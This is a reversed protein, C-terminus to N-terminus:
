ADWLEFDDDFASASFDPQITIADARDSIGTLFRIGADVWVDDVDAGMITKAYGTYRVQDRFKRAEGEGLSAVLFATVRDAWEQEDSKSIVLRQEVEGGRRIARDLVNKFAVRQAAPNIRNADALASLLQGRVDHYARFQALSLGFLAILAWGITPLVLGGDHFESIVGLVGSVVFWSLALYHKGVAYTYGRM